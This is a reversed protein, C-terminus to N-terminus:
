APSPRAWSTPAPGSLMPGPRASAASSSHLVAPNVGSVAAYGLGLREAVGPRYSEIVVDATGALREAIALADAQKLDLAISRKGRNVAIGHASHDGYRRGLGRIWDGAPPEIKIVEAGYQALLM